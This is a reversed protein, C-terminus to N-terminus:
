KNKENAVLKIFEEVDLNDMFDFIGNNYTDIKDAEMQEIIDQSIIKYTNDNKEWIESYNKNNFELLVVTQKDSINAMTLKM